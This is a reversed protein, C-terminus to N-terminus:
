TKDEPYLKEALQLLASAEQSTKNPFDCHQLFVRRRAMNGEPYIQAAMEILAEKEEIPLTEYNCSELFNLAAKSLM